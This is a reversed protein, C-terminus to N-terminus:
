AFDQGATTCQTQQKKIYKCYSGRARGSEEFFFFVLELDREEHLSTMMIM